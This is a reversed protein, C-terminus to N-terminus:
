ALRVKSAFDFFLKPFHIIKPIFNPLIEPVGILNGEDDIIISFYEKLMDKIQELQDVL